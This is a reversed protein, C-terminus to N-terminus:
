LGFISTALQFAKRKLPNKGGFFDAMIADPTYSENRLWAGNDAGGGFAQGLLSLPKQPEGAQGSAASGTEDVISPLSTAALPQGPQANKLPQVHWPEYNMPFQLGFNAASQHIADL